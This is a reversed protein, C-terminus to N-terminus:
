FFPRGQLRGKALRLIVDSYRERWAADRRSGISSTHIIIHPDLTVLYGGKDDSRGVALYGEAIDVRHRRLCRRHDLATLSEM